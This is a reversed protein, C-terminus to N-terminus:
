GRIHQRKIEEFNWNDDLDEKPSYWRFNDWLAFMRSKDKYTLQNHNDFIDSRAFSFWNGGNIYRFFTWIGGIDALIVDGSGDYAHMYWKDLQHMCSDRVISYLIGCFENISTEGIIDAEIIRKSVTSTMDYTKADICYVSYDLTGDRCYTGYKMLRATVVM